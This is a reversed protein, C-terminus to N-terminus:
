TSSVNTEASETVAVPAHGTGNATGNRSPEAPESETLYQALAHALMERQDLHRLLEDVPQEDCEYQWRWLLLDKRAQAIEPLDHAREAQVFVRERRQGEEGRFGLIRRDMDRLEAYEEANVLIEGGCLIGTDDPHAERWALLAATAERTEALTRASLMLHSVREREANEEKTLSLM